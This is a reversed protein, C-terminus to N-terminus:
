PCPAYSACISGGLEYLVRDIHSYVSEGVCMKNADLATCGSHVGYAEVRYNSLPYSHVAGGSDGYWHTYSAFRQQDYWVGDAPFNMRGFRLIEGCRYGARRANICTIDGEDDANYFQRGIVSYTLTTTLYVKNSAYTDSINGARAADSWQCGPWCTAKITGIGWSSNGAHYWKVGTTKACHGATLWQVDSGYHILFAISCRNEYATGPPAGSIGGRLPPGMCSERGTCATTAPNAPVVKLMDGYRSILTDIEAPQPDVVGIHVLNESQDVGYHVIEIGDRQLADRDRDLRETVRELDALPHPVDIVRLEGGAPLLAELAPRHMAAQGNFAVTVVGGARQDIWHGAFGPIAEAAAELPDLAGQLAFRRDMEAREAPSLAHGPPDGAAVAAAVMDRVHAEDSRFGMEARFRMDAAVWGPDVPPAASAPSMPITGMLFALVFAATRLRQRM